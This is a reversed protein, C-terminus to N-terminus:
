GFFTRRYRNKHPNNFNYSYGIGMAYYSSQWEAIRKSRIRKQRAARTENLPVEPKHKKKVKTKKPIITTIDNCSVFVGKRLRDCAILLEFM